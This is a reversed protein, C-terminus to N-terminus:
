NLLNNTFFIVEKYCPEHNDLNEVINLSFDVLNTYDYKVLAKIQRIQRRIAINCHQEELAKDDVIAHVVEDVLEIPVYKQMTESARDEPEVHKNIGQDMKFDVSTFETKKRFM